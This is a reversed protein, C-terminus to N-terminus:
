KAVGVVENAAAKIAWQKALAIVNKGTFRVTVIPYGGCDTEPDYPECEFSVWPLADKVSAFVSYYDEGEGWYDVGGGVSPMNNVRVRQQYNKRKQRSTLPKSKEAYYKPWLEYDNDIWVDKPTYGRVNKLIIALRKSLKKEIRPKM